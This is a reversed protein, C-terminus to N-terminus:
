LPSQERELHKAFWNLTRIWADKAAEPKYRPGTDNFFAHETEPYIVKAYPKHLRQMEEEVAPFGQNIRQDNEAYIALVPAKISAIDSLPPHPGYFPVAARLEPMRTAVKWTVGGGFCFGTMGVQDALTYPQQQLYHWASIFDRAFQEPDISGLVAPVESYDLAQTGGHRSLLDVALSTYGAHAFRRAVDKIHETLGRNEHCVLIIPYRGEGSPRSLYGLLSTEEGPFQLEAAHISAGAASATRRESTPVTSDPDEPLLPMHKPSHPKNGQVVSSLSKISPEVSELMSMADQESGCISAILRLAENRPLLGDQYDEAFEEVLYRQFYNM